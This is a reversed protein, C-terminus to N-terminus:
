PQPDPIPPITETEDSDSFTPPPPRKKPRRRGGAGAQDNAEEAAPTETADEPNAIGNTRLPADPAAAEAGDNAAVTLDVPPIMNDDDLLGHATVPATEGSESPPAPPAGFFEDSRDEPPQLFQGENERM